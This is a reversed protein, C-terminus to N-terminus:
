TRSIVREISFTIIDSIVNQLSHFQLMPKDAHNQESIFPVHIFVSKIEPYHALTRYYIDNCVFTGASFSIEIPLGKQMLYEHLQDIPYSTMVALRADSTIPGTMPCFGAEDKETTQRWNLAVKELSVKSRGGAQGLMIIIEPKIKEISHHLIEFARDFEVPLVITSVQAHQISEVLMQSPNISENLFPKFGSVLIM